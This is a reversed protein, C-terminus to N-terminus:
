AGEQVSYIEDAVLGHAEKHVIAAADATPADVLCFIKGEAEDVWYRLYQVGHQSQTQLDAVHAKAVDDMAVGGDITHLDMYLPMAGGLFGPEGVSGVPELVGSAPRASMPPGHGPQAARSGLNPQGAATRHTLLGRAEGAGSVRPPGRHSPLHGSSRRDRQEDPGGQPPGAGAGRTLHARARAWWAAAEDHRGALELSYPPPFVRDPVPEDVRRLWAALDGHYWPDTGHAREVWARFETDLLSRDGTLWAGQAIAAAVRALWEIEDNDRVLARVEDLYTRAGPDGRRFLSEVLPILMHMRNVPSMTERLLGRTLDISEGLRGQRLLATAHSARICYTFVPMEAEVMFETGEAFAWEFEHFRLQETAIEYVNGYQRATSFDDGTRRALELARVHTTLGEDGRLLEQYGMGTLVSAMLSDDELHRAIREAESM